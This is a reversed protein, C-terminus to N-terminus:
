TPGDTRAQRQRKAVAVKQMVDTVYAHADGRTKVAAYRAQIAALENPDGSSLEADAKRMIQLVGALNGTPPVPEEDSAAQGTAVAGASGAAAASFSTPCDSRPTPLSLLSLVSNAKADRDTLPELHFLEELTKPVSAHDHLEHDVTGAPILPSVVVAPIRVGYRDFTFGCTNYGYQPNDGPPPASGPAVSDYFGGHEDYVIILLSTEWYPSNRIAQYVAALLHEGGYVDDMPHQSSGGAYTNHTVDGYHPEIFTYTYPYLTQLDAAFTQLGNMDAVTVGSLSSVQPVAGAISGKTPDDSYMSLGIPELSSDHYFRYAIGAASLAEYISGHPYQFGQLPLEWKAIQGTSPSVDLGSSSAGHVFFRNPWTPGPISAYWQDCIAFQTALGYIVPLQSPTAFCAMIDGIASAPPVPGETSSTAYSAAFGANTITPYPGGRPYKVGEGCLQETVDPFEHGPDSPMSTPAGSTVQYTTGNYSNANATTAARIGSIGSMAFVNDFSHNELMVVFVNTIQSSRTARRMTCSCAGSDLAIDLETASVSFTLSKGADGSQLQCEKWPQEVAGNSVYTGSNPGDMVLVMAAWWDLIHYSGWGTLFRVEMSGVTAGPAATWVGSQTGNSSNSHFLLIRANGGTNNKISVRATQQTSM